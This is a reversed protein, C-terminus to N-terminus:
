FAVSLASLLLVTAAAAAWRPASGTPLQGRLLAVAAASAAVAIGLRVPVPALTGTLLAAGHVSLLTCGLALTHAGVVSGPAPALTHRELLRATSVYLAFVIVFAVVALVGTVGLALDVFGGGADAGAEAAIRGRTAELIAPLRLGAVACVALYVGWSVVGRTRPGAPADAGPVGPRPASHEPFRLATVPLAPSSSSM